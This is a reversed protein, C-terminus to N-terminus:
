LAASSFLQNFPSAPHASPEPQNDQEAAMCCHGSGPQLPLGRQGHCTVLCGLPEIQAGVVPWYAAIIFQHDLAMVGAGVRLGQDQTDVILGRDVVAAPDIQLPNDGGAGEGLAKGQALPAGALGSRQRQVFEGLEIEKHGIVGGRQGNVAPVPLGTQSQRLAGNRQIQPRRSRGAKGAKLGQARPIGPQNAMGGGDQAGGAIGQHAIPQAIQIAYPQLDGFSAVLEGEPEIVGTFPLVQGM